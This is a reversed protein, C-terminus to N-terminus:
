ICVYIYEQRCTVSRTLTQVASFGDLFSFFPFYSLKGEIISALLYFPCLCTWGICCQPEWKCLEWELSVCRSALLIAWPYLLKGALGLRLIGVRSGMHHFPLVRFGWVRQFMLAGLCICFFHLQTVLFFGCFADSFTQCQRNQAPWRGLPCMMTMYLEGVLSRVGRAYNNFAPPASWGEQQIRGFCYLNATLAQIHRGLNM